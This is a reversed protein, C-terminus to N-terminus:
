DISCLVLSRFQTTSLLPRLIYCNYFKYWYIQLLLWKTSSTTTATSTGTAAAVATTNLMATAVATTNLMATAVATTNLMATAVATVQFGMASSFHLKTM